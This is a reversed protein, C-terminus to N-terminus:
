FWKGQSQRELHDQYEKKKKIASWWEPNATYWQVTEKLAEEFKQTPKWGTDKQIKEYTLAYRVDQGPRDNVHVVHANADKGMLRAIREVIDLNTHEEGGVNYIERLPANTVLAEIARCFDRTHIWSRVHLGSGHIPIKKGELINTITLPMLKEPYQYPGFNNSGRVIIIPLNYTRIYSQALFDAGAKSASYPNSPKLLTAEDAAGNDRDGYIEDTSIHVFRPTKFMRAADLLAHTGQINTRIFHVSNIISRDVHSEAAFHVVCDFRHEDCLHEVLARDAIDGHIFTYRRSEIPKQSQAAEIDSLNEPNGAYTLLDLNWVRVDPIADLIHRIFNSGIFGAGGTVLVKKISSVVM